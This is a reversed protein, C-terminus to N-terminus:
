GPSPSGHRVNLGGRCWWAVSLLLVCLGLVPWNGLVVYPTAGRRPQVDYDLAFPEFQPARVLARGRDDIIGSIGTNTARVLFRGTELARARAIQFHQHPGISTGFWADNSVTVLFSSEPLAGAVENAFAIEYCIFVAFRHGRVQLPRQTPAGDSFDAARVSFREALPRLLGDLPLFEGFPVLHRKDYRGRETGILFVSNLARGDSPERLPAGVLVATDAIRAEEDLAEIFPRMRHYEGPIATEPWVILDADFHRRSLIVYRRLTPERMEPLWKQDQPINGQVLAVRLPEGDARTLELGALSWACSWALVLALGPVLMRVLVPTSPPRVRRLNLAGRQTRVVRLLQLGLWAFVAGSLAILWSVGLVGTFPLLGRLPGDVQTYGLQLWPFGSLLWGRLWECLVWAAPLVVLLLLASSSRGFLRITLWDLLAPYLALFAVFGFTMPLAMAPGMHNFAFSEYVWSVGVGFLGLGHAFGIWAAGSQSRGILLAAHVAVALPAIWWWFFPSFAFPLVAGSLLALLLLLAM